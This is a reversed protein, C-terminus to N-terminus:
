LESIEILSDPALHSWETWSGDYNRVNKYGLIERLVFASHSSRVGSHCYVIIPTEPDTLGRQKLEWAMDKISKLRFDEDFRVCNAWDHNVAGPIRGPKLAGNKLKEGSFEETTRTDIIVINTDSIANTVDEYNALLYSEEDTSPLKFNGPEPSPVEETIPLSDQEWAPQGGNLIRVKDYNHLRLLWWLRTADCNGRKDYIVLEDDANAGLRQLLAELKQAEARMGGYQYSGEDASFDPRYCQVAGPLHGKIYAEPKSVEIIIKKEGADIAQWLEAPEIIASPNAIAAIEEVPSENKQEKTNFDSCALMSIFLIAMGVINFFSYKNM